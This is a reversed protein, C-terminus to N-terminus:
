CIKKRKKSNGKKPVFDWITPHSFCVTDSKRINKRPAGEQRESRGPDGSSGPWVESFFMRKANQFGSRGAHRSRSSPNTKESGACRKADFDAAGRRGESRMTVPWPSSKGAGIFILPKRRLVELNQFKVQSFPPPNEFNRHPKMRGFNWIESKEASHNQPPHDPYQNLFETMLPPRRHNLARRLPASAGVPAESLGAQFFTRKARQCFRGVWASAQFAPELAKARGSRGSLPM